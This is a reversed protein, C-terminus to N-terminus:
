CYEEHGERRQSDCIAGDLIEVDLRRAPFLEASEVPLPESVIPSAWGVNDAQEGIIQLKRVASDIVPWYKKLKMLIDFNSLLHVRAKDVDGGGLLLTHLHVSSSVVLIHGIIYYVLEGGQAAIESVMTAHKKCESALRDDNRPDLFPFYLLQRYHHYGIHMALFTKGFGLGQFYEFNEPSYKLVSPLEYEWRELRDALRNIEDIQTALTRGAGLRIIVDLIERFLDITKAMQTWIGHRPLKLRLALFDEEDLLLLNEPPYEAKVPAISMDASSWKGTIVVSLYTRRRLEQDLLSLGETEWLRLSQCHLRALGACIHKGKADGEGGLHQSILIYSQVTELSPRIMEKQLLELAAAAYAEAFSQSDDRFYENTSFRFQFDTSFKERGLHVHEHRM